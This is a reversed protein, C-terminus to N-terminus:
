HQPSATPLYLPFQPPYSLNRRRLQFPRRPLHHLLDLLSIRLLLRQPLDHLHIRKDSWHFLQINRRHLRRRSFHLAISIAHISNSTILPPPSNSRLKTDSNRLPCAAQSTHLIRKTPAQKRKGDLRVKARLLEPQLTTSGRAAIKARLTAQPELPRATSGRAALKVIQVQLEM